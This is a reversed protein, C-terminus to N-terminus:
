VSVSASASASASATVPSEASGGIPKGILARGRRMMAITTAHHILAREHLERTSYMKEYIELLLLAQFAWLKAPPRFQRDMFAEWRIHWAFFNSLQAGAMAVNDGHTPKDLCAAGISMMSLLLLIPTRDPSFSPQHLIPVQDSFHVWYSGIYAQMMRKSLMHTPQTRDGKLLEDGRRDDPVEDREIFRLKIYDFIEQSKEDSLTAEPLNKELLNNVAMVQQPVNPFYGLSNADPGMYMQSYSSYGGSYSNARQREREEERM